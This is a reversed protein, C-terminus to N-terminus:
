GFRRGTSNPIRKIAKTRVRSLPKSVNRGSPTQTKVVGINKNPNSGLINYVCGSYHLKHKKTM